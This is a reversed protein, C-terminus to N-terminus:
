VNAWSWVRLGNRVYSESGGYILMGDTGKDLNRWYDLGDFMSASVTQGSKIEIPFLKEGDEVLLDM